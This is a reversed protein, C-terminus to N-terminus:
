RVAPRDPHGLVGRAPRGGGARDDRGVRHEAPEHRGTQCDRAVEEERGSRGKGGSRADVVEAVERYAGYTGKQAARALANLHLRLRQKESIGAKEAQKKTPVPYKRKKPYVFASDPLSQAAQADPAYSVGGGGVTAM